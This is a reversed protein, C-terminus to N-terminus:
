TSIFDFNTFPAAASMILMSFGAVLAAQRLTIGEDRNAPNTSSV